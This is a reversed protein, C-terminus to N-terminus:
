PAISKIYFRRRKHLRSDFHKWIAQVQTNEELEPNTEARRISNEICKRTLETMLISTLGRSQYEPKVAILLLEIEKPFKLALLLHIFGFPLIRGRSKQLAHTLCPIAIGFAVVKDNGDVVIKVYDPNIFGFYQKIYVDIQKETLEVVGYLDTYAENILHFIGRAYRILKKKGGKVLRLKSRELVLNQIRLVKEPIEKPTTVIFEVADADKEFGMSELHQPYYPHNYLTALTALQDFGEILMGEKDLDTFGMPGQLSTMGNELGWQTVADLLAGSVERDDIFDLWGFRCNRQGWKEIYRDNIIGAVRGVIQGNRRALYYKARCYEFSPNKAADLTNWEDSWLPPVWYKNGKYLSFPVRIFQRLDKKNRVEQITVSM